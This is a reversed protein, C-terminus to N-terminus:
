VRQVMEDVIAIQGRQKSADVITEIGAPVEDEVEDRRAVRDPAGRDNVAALRAVAALLDHLADPPNWRASHQEVLDEEVPRRRTGTVQLQMAFAGIPRVIDRPPQH